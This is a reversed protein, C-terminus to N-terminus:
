HTIRDLYFAQGGKPLFEKANPNLAPSFARANPNLSSNFPWMTSVTSMMQGLLSSCVRGVDQFSFSHSHSFFFNDKFMNVDIKRYNLKEVETGTTSGVLVIM